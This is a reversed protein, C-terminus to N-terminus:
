WSHKNVQWSEETIIKTKIYKQLLHRQFCVILCRDNISKIGKVNFEIKDALLKKQLDIITKIEENKM